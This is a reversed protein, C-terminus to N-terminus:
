APASSVLWMASPLRVSAGDLHAVLAQRISMIADAVAEAPQGRLASNVAGIQTSQDVAEELGRGTPPASGTVRSMAKTCATEVHSLGDDHQLHELSVHDLAGCCAAPSRRVPAARLLARTKPTDRSARPRHALPGGGGEMGNSRAAGGARASGANGILAPEPRHREQALPTAAGKVRLYCCREKIPLFPIGIIVSLWSRSICSARISRRRLM